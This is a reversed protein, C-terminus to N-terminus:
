DTSGNIARSPEGMHYDIVDFLHSLGELQERFDAHLLHTPVGILGGHLLPTQQKEDRQEQRGRPRPRAVRM